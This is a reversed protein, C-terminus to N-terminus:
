PPSYWSCCKTASAKAHTYERLDLPADGQVDPMVLDCFAYLISIYALPTLVDLVSWAIVNHGRWLSAWNAVLLMFATAAWCAHRWSFRVHDAHRYMAIGGSLMRTLALSTIVSILGFVFEFSTM